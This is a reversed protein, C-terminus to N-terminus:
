QLQSNGNRIESEPPCAGDYALAYVTMKRNDAEIATTGPSQYVPCLRPDTPDYGPVQDYFGMLYRIGREELFGWTGNEDGFYPIIDPSILGATDLLPRPAFYGVAGIDHTAFPVDVPINEAIWHAPAVMEENIIRVDRVYTWPGLLLAFIVTVSVASAALTYTILRQHTNRRGFRLLWGIGVVGCCILAPLAPMAYRSHQFYAPLWAAYLLPLALTWAPLLLFLWTRADYRLARVYRLTYMLVGPVFVVAAGSLLPVIMSWVRWLYSEEFLVALEIRKAANTSPLLGGTLQLNSVFYPLMILLWVAGALTLWGFMARPSRNPHALLLAVGCLGALVVGEPRTLMALAAAGGFLVARVLPAPQRADMERWALLILALTWMAFLGTEMGSAAAWILHWSFVCALGAALGVGRLDPAARLALRRALLGTGALAAAGLAHTWLQFPAGLVYGAALLITYLPSTSAASPVGPVFAWLGTQALNRAYTQHIWADDLAFNGGGVAVYAATMLVACGVILADAALPHKPWLRM